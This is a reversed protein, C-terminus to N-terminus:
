ACRRMLLLRGNHEPIAIDTALMLGFTQSITLPYNSYKQKDM